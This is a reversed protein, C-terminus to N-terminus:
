RLLLIEDYIQMEWKTWLGTTPTLSTCCKWVLVNANRGNIFMVWDDSKEVTKNWWGVVKRPHMGKIRAFYKEEAEVSYDKPLKGVKWPVVVVQCPRVHRCIANLWGGKTVVEEGGGGCIRGLVSLLCNGASYEGETVIALLSVFLSFFFRDFVMM